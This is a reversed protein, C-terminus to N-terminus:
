SPRGKKPHVEVDGEEAPEFEELVDILESEHGDVMLLTKGPDSPDYAVFAVKMDEAFEEDMAALHEGLRQQVDPSVSEIPM